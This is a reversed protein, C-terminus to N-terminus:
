KYKLINASFLYLYTFPCKLTATKHIFIDHLHVKPKEFHPSTNLLSIKKRVSSNAWYATTNCKELSSLSPLSLCELKNTEIMPLLYFLTNYIRDRSGMYRYVLVKKRYSNFGCPLLRSHKNSNIM